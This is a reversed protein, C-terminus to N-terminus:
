RFLRCLLRCGRKGHHGVSGSLDAMGVADALILFLLIQSLVELKNYGDWIRLGEKQIGSLHVLGPFLFLDLHTPNNPGPVIGGPIINCIKYRQDPVLDLVIWIYIWCDSKKNHYLQAGDMSLMVVMDYDNIEGNEFADLYDLGCFIDDYTVDKGLNRM